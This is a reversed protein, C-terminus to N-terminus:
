IQEEKRGGASQSGSRAGSTGSIRPRVGARQSKDCLLITWRWRCSVSVLLDVSWWARSVDWEEQEAVRHTFCPSTWLHIWVCMCVCVCTRRNRWWGYGMMCCRSLQFFPEWKSLNSMKMRQHKKPYIHTRRMAGTEESWPGWLKNIACENKINLGIPISLYVCTQLAKLSAAEWSFMQRQAAWIKNRFSYSEELGM